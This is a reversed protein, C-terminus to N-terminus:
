EYEKLITMQAKTLNLRDLAGAMYSLTFGYEYASSFETYENSEASAKATAQAKQMFTNIEIRKQHEKDIVQMIYGKTLLIINYPVEKDKDVKFNITSQGKTGAM